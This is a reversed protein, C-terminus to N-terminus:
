RIRMKKLASGGTVLTITLLSSTASCTHTGSIDSEDSKISTIFGGCQNAAGGATATLTQATDYDDYLKLAITDGEQLEKEHTFTLTLTAYAGATVSSPVLSVGSLSALDTRLVANGSVDTHSIIGHASHYCHVEYEEDPTLGNLTM